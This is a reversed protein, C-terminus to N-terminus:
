NEQPISLTQVDLPSNLVTYFRFQLNYDTATSESFWGFSTANDRSFLVPVNNSNLVVRLLEPYEQDLSRPSVVSLGTGRLERGIRSLVLLLPFTM